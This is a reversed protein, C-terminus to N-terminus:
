VESTTADKAVVTLKPLLLIDSGNATTNMMQFALINTGAVLKGAFDVEYTDPIVAESDSHSRTAASDWALPSPANESLIQQGNLYGVVGDEWNLDLVMRQVASPDDVIIPVRVFISANVGKAFSSLDGDVGLLDFYPSGITDWGYGLAATNWASDDYSPVRWDEAGPDSTPVFFKANTDQDVPVTVISAGVTGVGYSIDEFQPPPDYSSAITTGDPEVLALFEGPQITFNTHLTGSPDVRDKNSAFIVLYDNPLLTVAPITWKTLDDPDDTLYWGEMSVATGDTNEIEIWDSSDGDEDFLSRSNLAVFESIRPVAHLPVVGAFGLLLVLRVTNLNFIHM